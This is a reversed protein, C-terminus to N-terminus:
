SAYIKRIRNAHGLISGVWDGSGITSNHLRESLVIFVDPMKRKIANAVYHKVAVPM